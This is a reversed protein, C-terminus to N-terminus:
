SLCEAYNIYQNDELRIFCGTDSRIFGNPFYIAKGSWIPEEKDYQKIVICYLKCEPCSGPFRKWVGKSGAEIKISSLMIAMSYEYSDNMHYGFKVTVSEPFDDRNLIEAIIASKLQSSFQKQYTFRSSANNLADELNTDTLHVNLLDIKALEKADKFSLETKYKEIM